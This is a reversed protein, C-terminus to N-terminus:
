LTLGAVLGGVGSVERRKRLGVPGYLWPGRRQLTVKEGVIRASVDQIDGTQSISNIFDLLSVM